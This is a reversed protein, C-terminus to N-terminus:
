RVRETNSSNDQAHEVKELSSLKAYSAGFRMWMALCHNVTLTLTHNNHSVPTSAMPFKSFIHQNKWFPRDIESWDFRTIALVGVWSRGGDSTLKQFCPGLGRGAKSTYGPGLKTGTCGQHSIHVLLIFLSCVFTM